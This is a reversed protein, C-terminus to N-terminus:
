QYLSFSSRRNNILKADKLWSRYKCAKIFGDILWELITDVEVNPSINKYYFIMHWYRIFYASAYQDQKLSDHEDIAHCYENAIVDIDYDVDEKKGKVFGPIQKARIECQEYFEALQM